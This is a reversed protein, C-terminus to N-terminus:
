GSSGLFPAPRPQRSQARPAATAPTAESQLRSPLPLLSPFLHSRRRTAQARPRGAQDGPNPPAGPRNPASTPLHAPNTGSHTSLSVPMTSLVDVGAGSGLGTTNLVSKTCLGGPSAMRRLTTTNHVMLRGAIAGTERGGAGAGKGLAAKGLRGGLLPAPRWFLARPGLRRAFSGRGGGFRARFGCGFLRAFARRML